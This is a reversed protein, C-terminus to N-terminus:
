DAPFEIGYGRRTRKGASNRFATKPQMARSQHTERKSRTSLLSEIDFFRARQLRSTSRTQPVYVFNFLLPRCGGARHSDIAPQFTV